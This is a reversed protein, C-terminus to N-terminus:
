FFDERIVESNEDSLIIKYLRDYGEDIRKKTKPSKSIRDIVKRIFKKM